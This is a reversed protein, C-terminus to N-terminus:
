HELLRGCTFVYGSDDAFRFERTGWDTDGVSEVIRVGRGRLEACLGDPDPTPIFGDQRAEAHAGANPNPTVGPLAKLQLVVGERHLMAFDGALHAEAFEPMLFEFGLKERYYAASRAVDVVLLTPHLADM